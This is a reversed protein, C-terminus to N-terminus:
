RWAMALIGGCDVGALFVSAGLFFMRIAAYSALDNGTM